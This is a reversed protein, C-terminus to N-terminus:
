VRYDSPSFELFRTTEIGPQNDFSMLSPAPVNATRSRKHEKLIIPRSRPSFDRVRARALETTRAGTTHYVRLM